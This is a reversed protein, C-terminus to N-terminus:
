RAGPLLTGMGASWDRANRRAGMPTLHKNHVDETEFGFDFDDFSGPPISTEPEHGGNQPNGANTLRYRHNSMFGEGEHRPQCDIKLPDIDTPMHASTALNKTDGTTDFAPLQRFLAEFSSFNLAPLGFRSSVQLPDNLAEEPIPSLAPASTTRQLRPRTSTTKMPDTTLANLAVPLDIILSTRPRVEEEDKKAKAMDHAKWRCESPFSCYAWCDRSSVRTKDNSSSASSSISWDRKNGKWTLWEQWGTYDFETGCALSKKTKSSKVPKGFCVQHDDFLCRQTTGLPFRTCCKHCVWSWAMPARPPVDATHNNFSAPTGPSSTATPLVRTYPRPATSISFGVPSQPTFAFRLPSRTVSPSFAMQPSM